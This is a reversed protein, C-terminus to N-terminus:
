NTKNLSEIANKHSANMIELEENSLHDTLFSPFISNKNAIDVWDEIDGKSSLFELLEVDFYGAIQEKSLSQTDQTSLIKEFGFDDVRNYDNTMCHFGGGLERGYPNPM